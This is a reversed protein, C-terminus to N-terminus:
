ASPHIYGTGGEDALDPELREVWLDLFTRVKASLHRNGPYLATFALPPPAQDSLVERLLGARLARAVLFRPIWAIGLDYMAADRAVVLSNVTFRGNVVM